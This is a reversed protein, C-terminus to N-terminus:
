VQEVFVRLPVKYIAHQKCCNVDHRCVGKKFVHWCATTANEMAGLTAEFGFPQRTFAQPTCYGMVYICKSKTTVQLLTKQAFALVEEAVSDVEERVQLTISCDQSDDSIKVGALLDCEALAMGVRRMVADYKKRYQHKWCSKGNSRLVLPALVSSPSPPALSVSSADTDTCEDDSVDTSVESNCGSSAGCSGLLVHM